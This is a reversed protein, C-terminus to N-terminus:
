STGPRHWYGLAVTEDGCPAPPPLTLGNGGIGDNVARAPPCYGSSSHSHTPPLHQPPVNETNSFLSMEDPRAGAWRGKRERKECINSERGGRTATAANGRFNRHRLGDVSGCDGITSLPTATFVCVSLAEELQRRLLLNRSNYGEGRGGERRKNLCSDGRLHSKMNSSNNDANAGGSGARARMWECLMGRLEMATALSVASHLKSPTLSSLDLGTFSMEDAMGSGSTNNKTRCHSGADAKLASFPVKLALLAAKARHVSNYPCM